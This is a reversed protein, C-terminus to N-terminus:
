SVAKARSATIPVRADWVTGTINFVLYGFRRDLAQLAQDSAQTSKDFVLARPSHEGRHIRM